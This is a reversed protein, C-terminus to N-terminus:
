GAYNKLQGPGTPSGTHIAGSSCCPITRAELFVHMKPTYVTVMYGRKCCVHHSFISPRSGPSRAGPDGKVM